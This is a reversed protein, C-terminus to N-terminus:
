IRTPEIEIGQFGAAKVKNVHEADPLAGAICGAWLEVSRQIETPTEGRVMAGIAFEAEGVVTGLIALSGRQRVLAARHPRGEGVWSAAQLERLNQDPQYLPLQANETM